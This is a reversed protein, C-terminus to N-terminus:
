SVAATIEAATGDVPLTSDTTTSEAPPTTTIATTAPPPAAISPYGFYADIIKRIMYKGYEGEEVIGAFAIQPDGVPYYGIFTTHTIEATKQPTGTKIACKFPLSNLDSGTPMATSAALVMGQEILDYMEDNKVDITSVVSPETKEIVKDMNYSNISDILFPKYRVGRNALTAAQVAMQLPTVATESQGISAQLVQGPTWDQGINLFVDPSAVYGKTGGIELGLDEGLGYYGAYKDINKIGTRRGVDYFFINCSVQLAHVVGTAGHWGTCTPAIDPYFHYVKNCIVSSAGDVFGENLAATATVTKFTSGPRYLGNIARNNLPGNERGEVEYYNKIYDNIDYTPANALALVAGTKVDLVAIAGGKANTGKTQTHLWNIHDALITQVEKQFKSDVTLQVTNGPVAEKTTEIKTVVGNTITTQRTGNKGRLYDEMAKEVGLKGISDNLGYGSSKRVAYEEADIAGVTGIAHALVDGQSYVLIAEEVIDLGPFAYAMEKLKAVTDMKIDRAFVYRNDMSFDRLLMEYRIGAIIRREEESYETSIEYKEILANICDDPTAYPALRLHGDDKMTAIEREYGDIYTYPATKTIPISEEWELNDKQLLLAVRLIIDNQRAKENPFFAREIIVNFGVKNRVIPVGKSDVIEGRAAQILQTGYANQKSKELFDAGEVIQMRMLQVGCLAALVLVLAILGVSRLRELWKEM